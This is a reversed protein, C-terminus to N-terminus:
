DGDKAKMNGGLDGEVGGGVGMGVGVRCLSEAIAKGNENEKGNDAEGCRM